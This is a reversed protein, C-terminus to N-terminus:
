LDVKKYIPCIMGMCWDEPIAGSNLILNFLNTIICYMKHPSHKIFENLIGDIGASKNSRMYKIALGVEDVSFLQNIEENENSYSQAVSCSNTFDNRASTNSWDSSLEDFFVKFIDLEIDIKQTPKSHHDNLIKWYDKSNESRLLRLNKHFECEYNRKATRTIKKYEKFKDDFQILLTNREELSHKSRLMNKIDLYESRAIECTDTFWKNVVKNHRRKTKVVKQKHKFIRCVGAKEGAKYFLSCMSETIANIQSQSVCGEPLIQLEEGLQCMEHNSFSDRYKDTSEPNWKSTYRISNVAKQISIDEVTNPQVIPYCRITICIPSHSDSLCKDYIDVNFDTIKSFICHSVLAYDIVSKGNYKHCTYNGNLGDEGVRGNVINLHTVKCFEILKHGSSNVITDKNVRPKLENTTTNILANTDYYEYLDINNFCAFDTEIDDINGTRANFDGILVYPKDYQSTIYSMDDIIDDFLDDNYYESNSPPIYVTGLIFDYNKILIWNVCMSNTKEIQIIDNCLHKKCLTSIGHIGTNPHNFVSFSQNDHLEIQKCKSENICVIDYKEIYTEFIGNGM